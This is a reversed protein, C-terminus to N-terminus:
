QKRNENERKKGAVAIIGAGAAATLLIVAIV